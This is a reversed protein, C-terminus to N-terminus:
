MSVVDTTFKTCSTSTKLDVTFFTDFSSNNKMISM